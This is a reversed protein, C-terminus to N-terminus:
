IPVHQLNTESSTVKLNVELQPLADYLRAPWFGDWVTVPASFWGTHLCIRMIICAALFMPVKPQQFYFHTWYMVVYYM